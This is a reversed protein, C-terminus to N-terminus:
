WKWGAGAQITVEGREGLLRLFAQGDGQFIDRALELKGEIDQNLNNRLSFLVTNKEGLKAEAGLVIARIKKDTEIEFVLGVGKKIKWSGFLTITRRVPQKRGSLGIGLEYKVYNGKFIGVSTKFNFVSDSSKEIVYSFRAKDTIDWCGQFTLSYLRKRKRVLDAKTYRYIIQYHKNIQWAGCFVLTDFNDGGKAVRFTLRNRADAQWAGSLELTYLSLNRKQNRTTVAFLLANKKVDLIEGQITLQDGFTKRQWKDLTFGLQHDKDLSWEGKLKVQHPAKIDQPVPTKIDYTLTNRPGVKFQGELVRRMGFLDAVLRNHPDIEYRLKPM